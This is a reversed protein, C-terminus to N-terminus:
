SDLPKVPQKLEDLLKAFWMHRDLWHQDNSRLAKGAADFLLAAIEDVRKVIEADDVLPMGLDDKHALFARALSTRIAAFRPSRADPILDTPLMAAGTIM